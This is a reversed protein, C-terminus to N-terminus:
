VEEGRNVTFCPFTYQCSISHSEPWHCQKAQAILLSSYGCERVHRSYNIEFLFMLLPMGFVWVMLTLATIYSIPLELTWKTGGPTWRFAYVACPLYDTHLESFTLSCFRVREKEEDGVHNGESKNRRRSNVGATEKQMEVETVAYQIAIDPTFARCKNM